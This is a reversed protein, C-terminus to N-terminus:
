NQKSKYLGRDVATGRDRECRLTRLAWTDVHSTTIRCAQAECVTFPTCHTPYHSLEHKSRKGRGMVQKKCRSDTVLPRACDHPRQPLGRGLDSAVLDQCIAEVLLRARLTECANTAPSRVVIGPADAAHTTAALLALVVVLGDVTSLAASCKLYWGAWGPARARACVAACYASAM